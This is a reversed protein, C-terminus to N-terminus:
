KRRTRPQRAPWQTPTPLPTLARGAWWVDQVQFDNENLFPGHDRTRLEERRADCCKEDTRHGRRGVRVIPVERVVVLRRHEGGSLALKLHPRGPPASSLGVVRAEVVSQLELHAQGLRQHGREVEIEMPY